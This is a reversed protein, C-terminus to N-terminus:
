RQLDDVRRKLDALEQRLEKERSGPDELDPRFSPGESQDPTQLSRFM